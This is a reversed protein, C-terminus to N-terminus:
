CGFSGCGEVHLPKDRIQQAHHREGLCLGRPPRHLIVERKPLLVRRRYGSQIIRKDTTGGRCQTLQDRLVGPGGLRRKM